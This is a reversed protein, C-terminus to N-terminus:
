VDRNKKKEPINKMIRIRESKIWEALGAALNGMSYYGRLNIDIEGSPLQDVNKTFQCDLKGIIKLVGSKDMIKASVMRERIREIWGLQSEIDNDHLEILYREYDQQQPMDIRSIRAVIPDDWFAVYTQSIKVEEKPIETVISLRRALEQPQSEFFGKSNQHLNTSTTCHVYEASLIKGDFDTLDWRTEGNLKMRSVDFQRIIVGDRRIRAVLRDMFDVFGHKPGKMIPRRLLVATQHRLYSKLKTQFNILRDRDRTRNFTVNLKASVVGMILRVGTALMLIRSFYPFTIGCPHIRIPQEKLPEFLAGSVEELLEYVGPFCEILHCAIEVREGNNLRAIQWAGGLNGEREVLCVKRGKRALMGAQLLMLPSSGIVIDDFVTDQITESSTIEAIM